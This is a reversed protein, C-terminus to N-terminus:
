PYYGPRPRRLRRLAIRLRRALSRRPVPFTEGLAAEAGPIVTGFYFASLAPWAARVAAHGWKHVQQPVRAVSEIVMTAEEILPDPHRYADAEPALNVAMDALYQRLADGTRLRPYLRPPLVAGRPLRLRFWGLVLGRWLQHWGWTLSYRRRAHYFTLRDEARCLAALGAASYRQALRAVQAQDALRAARATPDARLQSANRDTSYRGTIRGGERRLDAFHGLEQGAIVILRALAPFGDTVYTKQEGEFFPDGGASVYVAASGRDTAQLGSATGHTQWHQLEMLDAVNHSYSLYIEAGSRLLLELVAPHAAQMLARAARWEKETSLGRAKRLERMLHARTDAIGQAGHAAASHRKLRRETAAALAPDTLERASFTTDGLRVFNRAHEANIRLKGSAVLRAAMAELAPPMEWAEIAPLFALLHYLNETM